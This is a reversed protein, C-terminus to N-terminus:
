EEYFFSYMKRQNLLVDFAAMFNHVPYLTPMFLSHAGYDPVPM